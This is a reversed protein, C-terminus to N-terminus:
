FKCVNNPNGEQIINSVHRATIDATLRPFRKQGEAICKKLRIKYLDEASISSQSIDESESM